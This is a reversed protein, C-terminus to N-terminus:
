LTVQGTAGGSVGTGSSATGGGIPGEAEPSVNKGQIPKGGETGGSGSNDDANLGTDHSGAAQRGEPQFNRAREENETESDLPGTPHQSDAM